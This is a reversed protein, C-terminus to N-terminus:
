NEVCTILNIEDVAYLSVQKAMKFILKMQFAVECFCEPYKVLHRSVITLGAQCRFKIAM